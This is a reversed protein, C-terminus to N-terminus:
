VSQHFSLSLTKLPLRDLAVFEGMEVRSDKAWMIWGLSRKLREISTRTELSIEFCMPFLRSLLNNLFYCALSQNQDISFGESWSCSKAWRKFSSWTRRVHLIRDLIWKIIWSSMKSELHNPLKQWLSTLILFKRSPRCSSPTWRRSRWNIWSSRSRGSAWKM